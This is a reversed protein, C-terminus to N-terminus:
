CNKHKLYKPNIGYLIGIYNARNFEFIYLRWAIRIFIFVLRLLQGMHKDCGREKQKVAYKQNFFYLRFNQKFTSKHM